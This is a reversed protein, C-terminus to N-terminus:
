KFLCRKLVLAVLICGKKCNNSGETFLFSALIIPNKSYCIEAVDHVEIFFIKQQTPNSLVRGITNVANM